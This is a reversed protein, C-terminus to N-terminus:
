EVRKIVVLWATSNPANGGLFLAEGKALMQTRKVVPEGKGFLSVEVSSKGTYKIEVDCKESLTVRKAETESLKVAKRNVEFYNAWKLPLKKLKEKLDAEVQKHAPDPSKADDTGWILYAELKVEGATATQAPLLLSFLCLIGAALSAPIVRYNMM